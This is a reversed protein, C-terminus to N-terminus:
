LQDILEARSQENDLVDALAGYAAKKEALDPEPPPADTKNETTAAAGVAAAPLSVAQLPACVLMLMLLFIRSM